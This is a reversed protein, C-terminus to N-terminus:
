HLILGLRVSSYPCNRSSSNGQNAISPVWGTIEILPEKDCIDHPKPMSMWHPYTLHQKGPALLDPKQLLGAKVGRSSYLAIERQLKGYSDLYAVSAGVCLVNKATCPSTVSGEHPGENGAAVM